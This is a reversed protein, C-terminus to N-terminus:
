VNVILFFFVKVLDNMSEVVVKEKKRDKMGWWQGKVGIIELINYM